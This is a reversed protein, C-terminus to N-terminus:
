TRDLCRRVVSTLEGMPYPKQLFAWGPDLPTDGQAVEACYGSTCIVKLAPRRAVLEKALACGSVTGPMVLDTLLLDPLSTMANWVALAAVGSEAAVVHYGQRQLALMTVARVAADDEVLLIAEHGANSASPGSPGAGAAVASLPLAPLYVRFTSGRGVESDVEIWGHHQEVVGFVIALGLGTGKGVEKTTFFPEFIHAADAESIGCGTDGVALCLYRGPTARPHAPLDSEEFAVEGLEISLRGGRPMADRANVALNMLVQEMMGPDAKIRPLAAAMWEELVIREGLVRRLLGAMPRLVQGLDINADQKVQRRSFTLLQRTLDAARRSAGMIHEIGGRVQADMQEDDLLLSAQMEIVALLNNFDHAIGGALQGVAEMKQSQRVQDELHRRATIDEAVGAIRRVAGAADRIAFARYKIWRVAQDPRVTRFEVEFSGTAELALAAERVRAQDEAHISTWWSQPDDRLSACTRGWIKEYGPSVYIMRDTAADILWFAEDIAESIQALRHESEALDHAARDRAARTRLAGIGFSVDAALEEMITIEAEDFADPQASYIGLAGIAVGEILLPLAIVSQFGCRRAAERWPAFATELHLHRAVCTQGTRIATGCVSRVQDDDGWTPGVVAIYERSTGAFAVPRITRGADHEAFGAWAMVHGGEDVAIRCVEALLLEEGGARILMQNSNSLMRLARNVRALEAEARTRLDLEGQLQAYAHQLDSTRVAVEAELGDRASRVQDYAQKLKTEGLIENKLVSAVSRLLTPLYGQLEAMAIHLNELRLVGVVDPGAKLPCTWTYASTFEPSRMHTDGFDHEREAPEGTTYARRVAEDDFDDIRRPGALLDAHYLDDGIRYYLRINTGGIVDLIGLLVAEVVNGLGQAATVRNMLNIVLQLNSKEQALLRMREQLQRTEIADPAPSM